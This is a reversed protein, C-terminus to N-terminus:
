SVAMSDHGRFREDLLRRGQHVIELWSSVPDDANASSSLCQMRPPASPACSLNCQHGSGAAADALRRRQREERSPKVTTSAPGRASASSAPPLFLRAAGVSPPASRRPVFRSGDASGNALVLSANPQSSGEAEVTGRDGHVLLMGISSISSMSPAPRGAAPQAGAPEEQVRLVILCGGVFACFRCQPGIM